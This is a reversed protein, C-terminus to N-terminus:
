RHVNNLWYQYLEEITLLQSEEIDNVYVEYKKYIRGSHRDKWYIFETIHSTIEKAIPNAWDDIFESEKKLDYTMHNKLIEIIKEEMENIRNRLLELDRAILNLKNLQQSYYYSFTGLKTKFLRIRKGEFRRSGNQMRIKASQRIKNALGSTRCRKACLSEYESCKPNAEIFDPM